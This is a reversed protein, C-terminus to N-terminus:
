LTACSQACSCSPGCELDIEAAQDACEVSCEDLGCSVHAMWCGDNNLLPDNTTDTCDLRCQGAIGCVLWAAQCAPGTCLVDCRHLSPCNVITGFCADTGECEVRCAYGEPCDLEAGCEGATSCTFVCTNGECRDCFEPCAGFAINPDTDCQLAGCRDVLVEDCEDSCAISASASPAYGLDTCSIGEIPGDCIEGADIVGNGCYECGLTNYTCDPKCGLVGRNLGLLSCDMGGLVGIECQEIGEVVGDGCFTSPTTATASSESDAFESGASTAESSEVGRESTSDVDTVHTSMSGATISTESGEGKTRGEEGSTTTPDSSELM